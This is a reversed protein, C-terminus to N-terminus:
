ESDGTQSSWTHHSASKYQGVLMQSISGESGMFGQRTRFSNRLVSPIGKLEELPREVLTRKTFTHPWFHFCSGLFDTYGVYFHEKGTYKGLM